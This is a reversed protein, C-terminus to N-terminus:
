ESEKEYRWLRATGYAREGAPVLGAASPREEGLRRHVVVLAGPRLLPVLSQLMAEVSPLSLAYPPDVFALDFKDPVSELFREASRAVVRGGLGVREINQELAAVAKRDQEVFVATAAGRSLAELGLTGSGAFLDVVDADPIWAAISSFLGERARDTMPRTPAGTPSVLRRGRATGGIIRM